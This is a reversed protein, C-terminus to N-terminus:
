HPLLLLHLKLSKLHTIISKQATFMDSMTGLLTKKKHRFVDRSPDKVDTKEM